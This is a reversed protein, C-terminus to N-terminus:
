GHRFALVWAGVILTVALMLALGQGVTRIPTPGMRMESEFRILQGQPTETSKSRIDQEATQGARKVALHNLSETSVVQQGAAVGQRITTYGYGIRKGQMIYVDWAERDQVAAPEAAVKPAPAPDSVASPSKECGAWGLLGVAPALAGIVAITRDM